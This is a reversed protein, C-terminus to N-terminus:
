SRTCCCIKGLRSFSWCSSSTSTRYKAVVAAAVAESTICVDGYFVNFKLSNMVIFRKHWTRKKKIRAPLKKSAHLLYRCLGDNHDKRELTFSRFDGILCETQAM